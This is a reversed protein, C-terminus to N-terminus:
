SRATELDSQPSVCFEHSHMWETMHPPTRLHFHIIISVILLCQRCEALRVSNEVLWWRGLVSVFNSDRFKTSSHRRNFGVEVGALINCLVTCSLPIRDMQWVYQTEARHLSPAREFTIICYFVHEESNVRTSEQTGISLAINQAIFKM